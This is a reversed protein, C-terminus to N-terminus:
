GLKVQSIRVYRIKVIMEIKIKVRKVKFSTVKGFSFTVYRHMFESELDDDAKDTSTSLKTAEFASRRKEVSPQGLVSRGTANSMTNSKTIRSKPPPGGLYLFTLLM